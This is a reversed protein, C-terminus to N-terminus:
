FLKTNKKNVIIGFVLYNGLLMNRSRHDCFCHPKYCVAGSGKTHACVLEPTLPNIINELKKHLGANNVSFLKFAFCRLFSFFVLNSGFVPLSFTIFAFIFFLILYFIFFNYIPRFNKM